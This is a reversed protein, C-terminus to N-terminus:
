GGSTGEIQGDKLMEELIKLTAEHGDKEFEEALMDYLVKEDDTM